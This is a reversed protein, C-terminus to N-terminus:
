SFKEGMNEVQDPFPRSEYMLLGQHVGTNNSCDALCGGCGLALWVDSFDRLRAFKVDKLNM